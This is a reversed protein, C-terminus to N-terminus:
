RLDREYEDECCNGKTEYEEEWPQLEKEVDEILKETIDLKKRAVALEKELKEVTLAERKGEGTKKDGM